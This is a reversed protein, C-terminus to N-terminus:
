GGQQQHHYWSARPIMATVPLCHFNDHCEEDDDDDDYDGEVKDEELYKKLIAILEDAEDEDEENNNNNDNDDDPLNAEAFNELAKIYISQVLKEKSSSSAIPTPAPLVVVLHPYTGTIRRQQWPRSSSLFSLFDTM